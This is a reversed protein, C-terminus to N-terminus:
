RNRVYGKIKDFLWELFNDLWEFGVEALLIFFVVILGITLLKEEYIVFDNYGKIETAGVFSFLVLWFAFSFVLSAQWLGSVEMKYKKFRSM